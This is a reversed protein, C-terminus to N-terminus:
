VFAIECFATVPHTGCYYHEYYIMLTQKVPKEPYSNVECYGQHVPLFFLPWTAEILLGM